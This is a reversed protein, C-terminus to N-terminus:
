KSDKLESEWQTKWSEKIQNLADEWLQATEPCQQNITARIKNAGPLHPMALAMVSESTLMSHESLFSSHLLCEYHSISCRTLSMSEETDLAEKLSGLVKVLGTIRFKSEVTNMREVRESIAYGNVCRTANNCLWEESVQAQIIYVEGSTLTAGSLQFHHHTTRHALCQM